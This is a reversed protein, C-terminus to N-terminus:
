ECARHHCKEVQTTDGACVRGGHQAPPDNCERTRDRTGRGCTVSCVSWQSWSSWKGDVPCHHANCTQTDQSPGFCARGGNTPAPNNCNRFRRRQGNNCSASCEGWSSWASWGGHAPCHENNCYDTQTDSGGCYRGGHAPQPFDCFRKRERTGGGCSLSCRSWQNWDGWGGH